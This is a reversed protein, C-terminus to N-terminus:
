IISELLFDQLGIANGFKGFGEDVSTKIKKKKKFSEVSKTHPHFPFHFWSPIKVLM